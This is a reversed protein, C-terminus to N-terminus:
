STSDLRISSNGSPTTTVSGPAGFFHLCHHAPRRGGVLDGDNGAAHAGPQGAPRGGQVAADHLGPQTAFIAALLSTIIETIACAPSSLVWGSITYSGASAAIACRAWFAEAVDHIQRDAEAAGDRAFVADAPQFPGPQRALEPGLRHLEV